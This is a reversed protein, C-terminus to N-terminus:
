MTNTALLYVLIWPISAMVTTGNKKGRAVGPLMLCNQSGAATLMAASPIWQYNLHPYLMRAVRHVQRAGGAKRLWKTATMNRLHHHFIEMDWFMCGEGHQVILIEHLPNCILEVGKWQAHSAPNDLADVHDM